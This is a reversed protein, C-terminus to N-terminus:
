EPKINGALEFIPAYMAYMAAALAIVGVFFALLVMARRLALTSAAPLALAVVALSAVLLGLAPSAWPSLAVRTVVPLAGGFEAFMGAFSPAITFPFMLLALSQLGIAVVAVWDLATFSRSANM